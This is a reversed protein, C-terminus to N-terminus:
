VLAGAVVGLGVAEEVLRQVGQAAGGPGLEQVEPVGAAAQRDEAVREGALVGLEVRVQARRQAHLVQLALAELMVGLQGARRVLHQDAAQAVGGGFAGPQEVVLGELRDLGGGVAAQEEALGAVREAAAEQLDSSCVD